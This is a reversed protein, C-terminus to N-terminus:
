VHARGIQDSGEIYFKNIDVGQYTIRGNNEVDLGPMRKIVDGITKDQKRAFSGVNYIVTDGRERIKNSRVVVEQLKNFGTELRIELEASENAIKQSYPKYGLVTVNVTMGETPKSIKLSFHGKTDTTAFALIKGEPSKIMVNAADVPTRTQSETVNGTIVTQSAAILSTLSAILLLLYRLRM